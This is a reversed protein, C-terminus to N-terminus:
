KTDPGPMSIPVDQDLRLPIAVTVFQDFGSDSVDPLRLKYSTLPVDFLIRGQQTQAPRITRLLGFWNDVGQGDELERYTQGNPGELTLLPISVDSGGSNTVSLNILLFRNQPSRASLGDGLQTKWASEIVSYTLKGAPAREGMAFEMRAPGKTQCAPLWLLGAYLLAYFGLRIKM